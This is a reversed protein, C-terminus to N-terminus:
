EVIHKLIEKHFDYWSCNFSSVLIHLNHYKFSSTYNSNTQLAYATWYSKNDFFYNDINTMYSVELQIYSQKVKSNILSYKITNIILSYLFAIIRWVTPYQVPM